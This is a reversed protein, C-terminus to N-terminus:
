SEYNIYKIIKTPVGAIIINCPFSKNVVSNAGVKVNNGINIKGFLKAGPGLFCNDRIHPSNERGNNERFSGYM